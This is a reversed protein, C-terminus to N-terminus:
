ASDDRRLMDVEAADLFIRARSASAHQAMLRRAEIRADDLSAADLPEMHPTDSRDTDLFCFFTM